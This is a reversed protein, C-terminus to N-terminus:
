PGLKRRWCKGVFNQEYLEADGITWTEVVSVSRVQRLVNGSDIWILGRHNPRAGNAMRWDIVVFRRYEPRYEWFILQSLYLKGDSDHVHNLEVVDVYDVTVPLNRVEGILLAVALMIADM